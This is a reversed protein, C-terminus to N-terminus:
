SHNFIYRKSRKFFKVLRYPMSKEIELIRRQYKILEGELAEKQRVIESVFINETDQSSVGIKVFGNFHLDIDGVSNNLIKVDYIEKEYNSLNYYTKNRTVQDYLLVGCKSVYHGSDAPNNVVKLSRSKKRGGSIGLVLKDGDVDLGRIYSNKLVVVKQTGMYVTGSSSECFYLRSRYSKPSHPHFINYKTQNDKTNVLYGNRASSWREGSKLGMCSVWVDGQHVCIGNLHVVDGGRSTKPHQWYLGKHEFSDLSYSEVSNTGTSCALLIDKHIVVSHVDKSGALVGEKVVRLDKESVKLIKPKAASQTVCYIYGDHCTVGTIGHDRIHKPIKLFIIISTETDLIGLQSVNRNQYFLSSKTTNCFDFLIKM